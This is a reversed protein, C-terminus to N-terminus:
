GQGRALYVILRKGQRRAGCWFVYPDMDGTNQSAITQRTGEYDELLRSSEEGEEDRDGGRKRSGADAAFASVRAHRSGKEDEAGSGRRRGLGRV